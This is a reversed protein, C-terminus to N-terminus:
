GAGPRRLLRSDGFVHNPVKVPGCWDEAYAKAVLRDTLYKAALNHARGREHMPFRTLDEVVRFGDELRQRLTKRRRTIVGKHDCINRCAKFDARLRPFPDHHPQPMTLVTDFPNLKM